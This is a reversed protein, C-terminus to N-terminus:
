RVKRVGLVAPIAEGSELCLASVEGTLWPIARTGGDIGIGRFPQCLSPDPRTHPFSANSDSLSCSGGGAQTAM